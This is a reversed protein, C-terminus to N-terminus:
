PKIQLCNEKEEERWSTREREKKLPEEKSVLAGIGRCDRRRLNTFNQATQVAWLALELEPLHVVGGLAELGDEVDEM